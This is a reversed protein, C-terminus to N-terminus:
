GREGARIRSLLKGCLDRFEAMDLGDGVLCLDFGACWAALISSDLHPSRRLLVGTYLAPSEETAKLITQLEFASRGGVSEDIVVFRIDRMEDPLRLGMAGESDMRVPEPLNTSADVRAFGANRLADAMNALVEPNIETSLIVANIDAQPTEMPAYDELEVALQRRGHHLWRKVTGVPRGVRAAIEEVSAGSLYFLALARANDLPLRRLASLIDARLANAREQGEPAALDDPLPAADPGRTGLKIAENRVIRRAWARVSGPERLRDVGMCIRLLASAVADQADEYRRLRAWAEAFLRPRLIEVLDSLAELDGERARRALEHETNMVSMSRPGAQFTRPATPKAPELGVQVDAALGQEGRVDRRGDVQDGGPQLVASTLPDYCIAHFVM